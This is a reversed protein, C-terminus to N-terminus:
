AAAPMVAGWVIGDGAVMDTGSATVTGAAVAPAAGQNGSITNGDILVSDWFFRNDNPQDIVVVGNENPIAANCAANTGILNDEITLTGGPDVGSPTPAEVSPAPDFVFVGADLPASGNGSVVNSVIM